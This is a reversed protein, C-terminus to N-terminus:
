GCGATEGGGNAEEGGVCAEGERAGFEAEDRGHDVRSVPMYCCDDDLVAM